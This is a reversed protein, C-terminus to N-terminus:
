LYWLLTIKDETVAILEANTFGVVTSSEEKNEDMVFFDLHEGLEKYGDSDEAIKLREMEAYAQPLNDYAKHFTSTAGATAEESSITYDTYEKNIVFITKM